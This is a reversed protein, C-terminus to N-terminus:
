VPLFYFLTNSGLFLNDNQCVAAKKCRHPCCLAHIRHMGFCRTRKKEALAETEHWLAVFHHTHTIALMAVGINKAVESLLPIGTKLAVPTFGNDGHLRIVAPTVATAQSRSKGNCKGSRLAAVYGPIRFLGHSNCGDGEAMSVTKAVADANLEDCGNAALCEKALSYVEASNM